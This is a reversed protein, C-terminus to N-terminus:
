GYFLRKFRDNKETRFPKEKKKYSEDERSGKLVTDFGEGRKGKMFGRYEYYLPTKGDSGYGGTKKDCM